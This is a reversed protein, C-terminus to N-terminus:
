KTDSTLPKRCKQNQCIKAEKACAACIKLAGSSTGRKCIECQGIDARYGLKSCEKLDKVLLKVAGTHKYSAEDNCFNLM